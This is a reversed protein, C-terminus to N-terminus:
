FAIVTYVMMYIMRIAKKQKKDPYSNRFLNAGFGRFLFSRVSLVFKCVMYERLFDICVNTYGKYGTDGINITLQNLTSM